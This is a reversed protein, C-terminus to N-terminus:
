DSTKGRIVKGSISDEPNTISNLIKVLNNSNDRIAKIRTITAELIDGQPFIDFLYLLCSHFKGRQRDGLMHIEDILVLQLVRLLQRSEPDTRILFDFKEPTALLINVDSYNSGKLHIYDDIETDGTLALCRLGFSRFKSQWDTCKEQVIAKLPALYLAHFNSYKGPNTGNSVQDVKILERIIALELM